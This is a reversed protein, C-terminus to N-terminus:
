LEKRITVQHLRYGFPAMVRVWGERSEISAFDCEMKRGWKEVQPALEGVLVMVDGVAALFHVERAGTPYTRIEAIIAGENTAFCKIRGSRVQDDLWEPHHTRLDLMDAFAQRWHQYNM